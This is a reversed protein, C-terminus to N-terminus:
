CVFTSRSTRSRRCTPRCRPACGAVGGSAAMVGLATGALSLVLSEALLVRALDWRSGGLAARIRLERERTTARAVLLNAVNVCAILLVCGVAGLLLVMWTRVGSALFAHLPEVTVRRGEFWRPTTVALSTTIAGINARATDISVGDRLRGIVQLFRGFSTGRQRDAAAFVKPVWVETPDVAGVPYEFGRPMVGIVQFTRLQGPLTAGVVDARGRFRRQWLAYSIVAVGSGDATENASTFIQGVVPSVQLVEFFGATVQTSVLTEPPAAGERKLSIGGYATAAINTFVDQRDRWDLFDQPTEYDGSSAKALDGIATLRDARNFPLGRLTTADVVSFIAVSAGLGLTLVGVVVVTFAPASALARVALRLDRFLVLLAQM